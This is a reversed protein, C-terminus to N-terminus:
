WLMKLKNYQFYSCRMLGLYQCREILSCADCGLLYDLEYGVSQAVELTSFAYLVQTLLFNM